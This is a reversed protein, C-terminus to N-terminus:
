ISLMFIVTALIFINAALFQFASVEWKFVSPPQAYTPLQAIYKNPLAYFSNRSGTMM